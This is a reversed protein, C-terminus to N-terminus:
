QAPKKGMIYAYTRQLQDTSLDALSGAGFNKLIYPKYVDPNGFQKTCRAKIAGIRSARWQKDKAPASAMNRLLAMQHRVYALAAGYKEVMILHYSTAGAAKNIRSWAAGYGLPQRKIANHLTIWEDRLATLAVKQGETIVGDGPTVTVRPARQPKIHHHNIIDRGAAQAQGSATVQIVTGPGVPIAKQRPNAPKQASQKILDIIVAKKDKEDM